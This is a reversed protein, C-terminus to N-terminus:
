IVDEGWRRLSIVLVLDDGIYGLSFLMPLPSSSKM